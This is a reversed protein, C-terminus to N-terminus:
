YSWLQGDHLRLPCLDHIQCRRVPRRQKTQHPACAVGHVPRRQHGHPPPQLPQVPRRRRLPHAALRGDELAVDGDAVQEGHVLLGVLLRGVPAGAAADPAYRHRGLSGLTQGFFSSLFYTLPRLKIQRRGISDNAAFLINIAGYAPLAEFLHLPEKNFFDKPFPKKKTTISAQLSSYPMWRASTVKWVMSSILLLLCSSGLMRSPTSIRSSQQYDLGIPISTEACYPLSM